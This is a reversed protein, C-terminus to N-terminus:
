SDPDDPVSAIVGPADASTQAHVHLHDPNTAQLAETAAAVEQPDGSAVILYKGENVMEQYRGIQDEHVGWGAMSGLFGGVIAGTLGASIPGALLVPGVGPILLLPTALLAGMLGGTAAGAAASKESEDGSKVAAPDKLEDRVRHTV